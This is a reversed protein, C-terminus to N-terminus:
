KTKRGERERVLVTLTLKDMGLRNLEREIKAALKKDGNQLAQVYAAVYHELM